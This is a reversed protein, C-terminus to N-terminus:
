DRDGYGHGYSRPAARHEVRRPAPQVYVVRQAVPRYHQVRPQYHYATPRYHHQPQAVYVQQYAPQNASAIMAGAITGLVAGFIAGEVAQNSNSGVVAGATAGVVAGTAMTRDQYSAAQAMPAALLATSLLAATIIRKM